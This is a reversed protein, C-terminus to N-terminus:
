EEFPELPEHHAVVTLVMPNSVGGIKVQDKLLTHDGKGYELYWAEGIRGAPQQSNSCVLDYGAPIPVQQPPQGEAHMELSVKSSGTGGGLPKITLFLNEAVQM